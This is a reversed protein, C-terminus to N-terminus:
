EPHKKDYEDDKRKKEAAQRADIREQAKIIADCEAIERRSLNKDPAKPYGSLYCVRLTAAALRGQSLEM